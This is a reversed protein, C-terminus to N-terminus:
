KYAEASTTTVLVQTSTAGTFSTVDVALYRWNVPANLVLGDSLTSGSLTFTGLAVKGIQDNSGSIKVTAATGTTTVQVTRTEYNTPLFVSSTSDLTNTSTATATFITASRM